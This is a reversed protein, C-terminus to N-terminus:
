LKRLIVPHFRGKDLRKIKNSVWSFGLVTPVLTLVFLLLEHVSDGFLSALALSSCVFLLLPVFYLWWSAVLVSKEQIGIIVQDGVHVVVPTHLTLHQARHSFARAIAGTGCDSQTQCSSCTSKVQAEVTVEDGEVNVVVASEEIM